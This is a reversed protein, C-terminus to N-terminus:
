FGVEFKVIILNCNAGQLENCCSRNHSKTSHFLKAIMSIMHHSLYVSLPLLFFLMCSRSCLNSFPPTHIPSIVLIGRFAKPPKSCLSSIGANFIYILFKQAPQVCKNMGSKEEERVFSLSLAKCWTSHVKASTRTM